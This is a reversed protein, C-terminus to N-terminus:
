KTQAINFTTKNITDFLPILENSKMLYTSTMKSDPYTRDITVQDLLITDGKKLYSGSISCNFDAEILDVTFNGNKRLTLNQKSVTHTSNKNEAYIWKEGKTHGPLFAFIVLILLTLIIILFTIPEFKTKLLQTKRFTGVLSLIITVLLSIYFFLDIMINALGECREDPNHLKCYGFTLVILPVVLLLRSYLKL